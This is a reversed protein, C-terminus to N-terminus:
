KKCQNLLEKLECRLDFFKNNVNVGFQHVDFYDKHKTNINIGGLLVVPVTALKMLKEVDKRVEKRIIDPLIVMNKQENHTFKSRHKNVADIVYDEQYDGPKHSPAKHEYAYIAAGCCSGLHSIGRREVKGVIGEESIGVHSCYVLFLNGNDPVHHLCALTGTIGVFPFGALGGFFFGIKWQEDFQKELRRELEDACSSLAFLTNTPVINYKKLVITVAAELRRLSIAQPYHRKVIDTELM